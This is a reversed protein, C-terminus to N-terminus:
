KRYFVTPQTWGVMEFGKSALLAHVRSALVDQYGGHIEVAIVDVDVRDFDLTALVEGEFGEVDVSLLDIHSVNEAELIQSLPVTRVHRSLVERGLERARQETGERELGSMSGYTEGSHFYFDAEGERDSIAACINRDRKRFRDFVDIKYQDVDINIGHWGQRYLRHTNSAVVPHFCGVDVFFGDRRDKFLRHIVADEGGRSYSKFPRYLHAGLYGLLPKPIASLIRKRM